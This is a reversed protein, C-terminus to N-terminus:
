ARGDGAQKAGKADKPASIRLSGTSDRAAAVEAVGAQDWDLPALGVELRAAQVFARHMQWYADQWAAWAERSAALGRTMEHRRLHAWLLAAGKFVAEDKALLRVLELADQAERASIAKLERRLEQLQTQQEWHHRHVSQVETYMRGAASLWAVYAQRRLDTLREEAARQHQSRQSLYTGMGGLLTGLLTGAVALLSDM